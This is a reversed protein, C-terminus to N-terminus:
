KRTEEITALACQQLQTLLYDDLGEVRDISHVGGQLERENRLMWVACQAAAFATLEYSGAGRLLQRYTGGGSDRAVIEFVSASPVTTKSARTRALKALLKSLGVQVLPRKYIKRSSLTRVSNEPLGAFQVRYQFGQVGPWIRRAGDIDPSEYGAAGAEIDPQSSHLEAGHALYRHGNALTLLLSHMATAGAEGAESRLREVVDVINYERWRCLMATSIGPNLGCGTIVRVNKAMASEHLEAIVRAADISDNVDLCNTGAEVCLEHISAGLKEFPGACIIALDYDSITAVSAARDEPNLIRHNALKSAHRSSVDIRAPQQLYQGLYREVKRGTIGTGGIVLISRQQAANM